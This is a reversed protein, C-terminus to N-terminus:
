KNETPTEVADGDIVSIIATTNAMNAPLLTAITDSKVRLQMLLVNPSSNNREQKFRKTKLKQLRNTRPVPM